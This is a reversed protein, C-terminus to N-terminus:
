TLSIFLASKEPTVGHLRTSEKYFRLTFWSFLMCTAFVSRLSGQLHLCYKTEFRKSISPTLPLTCPQPAINCALLDRTRSGILHNFKKLEGLGELQM